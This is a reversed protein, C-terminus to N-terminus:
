IQQTFKIANVLLNSIVEYIRIKDAEVVIPDLKPDAFTIEVKHRLKLDDIINRIKENINFKEKNLSLSQSEIRSVDLISNTLNELRVANREIANIMEDRREPYTRLLQSMGLIAQTPTKLEHSAINIFEKQMKDNVKLQKNAVELQKNSENLERTRRKVEENLNSSWGILFIIFVVIAATTGALLSFTEIRQTLIVDNIQSYIVSTPTVASVFYIPKGQM